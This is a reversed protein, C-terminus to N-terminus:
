FDLPLMRGFDDLFTSELHLFQIFFIYPGEVTTGIARISDKVM